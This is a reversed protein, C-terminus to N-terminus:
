SSRFIARALTIGQLWKRKMAAAKTAFAEPTGIFQRFQQHYVRIATCLAEPNIGLRQLIPPVDGEIAGRQSKTNRGVWDLLELYKLFSLSLLGQDTARQGSVAPTEDLGLRQPDLTFESLWADAPPQGAAPLEQLARIRTGVSTFVSTEPTGAEGARIQNLDVYVGCILLGVEDEIARCGFRGQWFRGTVDDELNSRRAIYENLAQMFWSVDSLRKRIVKIQKKDRALEEIEQRSPEIWEGDLVRKGPFVRLWRRAVEFNGMRKVLRPFNQLVLHLHNALIAFYSVEIAFNSALRQLREIIWDRRFSYDTKSVPDYGFLFAGRVTRSYVHYIGPIDAKVVVGRATRVM